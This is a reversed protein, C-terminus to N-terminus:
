LCLKFRGSIQALVPGEQNYSENNWHSVLWYSDGWRKIHLPSYIINDCRRLLVPQLRCTNPAETLLQLESNTPLLFKIIFLYNNIYCGVMSLIQDAFTVNVTPHGCSLFVPINKMLHWVGQQLCIFLSSLTCYILRQHNQATMESQSYLMNLM